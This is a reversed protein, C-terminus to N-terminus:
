IDDEQAKRRTTSTEDSILGKDRLKTMLSELGKKSLNYKRMIEKDTLGDRLDQIADSARVRVKASRAGELFMAVQDPEIGM